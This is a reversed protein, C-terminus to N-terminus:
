CVPIENIRNMFRNVEYRFKTLAETTSMHKQHGTKAGRRCNESYPVWEINEKTYGAGSKLRDPSPAFRNDFGTAAFNEYLRNFVPHKEAWNTFEARPM